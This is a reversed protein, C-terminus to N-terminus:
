LTKWPDVQVDDIKWAALVNRQQFSVTVTSTGTAGMVQPMWLQDTVGWGPRSGDIWYEARHVGSPGSVTVYAVLYAGPVGPSKYFYRFQAEQSTVCTTPATASAGAPLSLSRAATGAVVNWPENETSTAAGGALRWGATTGEFSGGPLTFYANTDGWRAFPTSTTRTTCAVAATVAPSPGTSGAAAAPSALGALGLGTALVVSAAVTARRLATLQRM